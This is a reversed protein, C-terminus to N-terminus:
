TSPKETATPSFLYGALTGLLATVAEGPIETYGFSFVLLPIFLLIGMAKISSPGFGQDQRKLTIHVFWIGALFMIVVCAILINSSTLSISSTETTDQASASTTCMAMVLVISRFLSM